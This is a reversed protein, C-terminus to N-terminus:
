YRIDKKKIPTKHEITNSNQYTIEDEFDKRDSQFIFSFNNYNITNPIYDIISLTILAFSM